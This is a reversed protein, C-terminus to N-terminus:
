RWCADYAYGTFSCPPIQSNDYEWCQAGPGPEQTCTIEGGDDQDGPPKPTTDALVNNGVVFLGGVAFSLVM